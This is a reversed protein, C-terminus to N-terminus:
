ETSPSSRPRMLQDKSQCRREETSLGDVLMTIMLLYTWIVVQSLDCGIVFLTITKRFEPWVVSLIPIHPQMVPPLCIASEAPQIVKRDVLIIERDDSYDALSLKLYFPM